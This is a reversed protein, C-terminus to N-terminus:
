YNIYYGLILFGVTVILIIAQLIWTKKIWKGYNFSAMGL